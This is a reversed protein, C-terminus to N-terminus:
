YTLRHSARSEGRLVKEQLQLRSQPPIIRCGPLSPTMFSGSCSGLRDPHSQAAKIVFIGLIYFIKSSASNWRMM